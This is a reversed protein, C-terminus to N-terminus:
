RVKRSRGAVLLYVAFGGALALTTLGVVRTMNFVTRRGQPDTSYCFDLIRAITPRVRGRSAEQVAMELDAAVFRIGYVYRSVTGRPTLVVVGGPHAFGSGERRFVFGVSDTVAKTAEASGTLFRWAAPPYPREMQRLYNVRKQFAIEPTDKPDFSLTIVQFDRGPELPIRNLADVIGNLLPTCISTCTFFNMTLITPKDVLRRLTVENGEEDRLVADLAVEAGLKEHIGVEGPPIERAFAATAAGALLLCFAAMVPRRPCPGMSVERDRRTEPGPLGGSDRPGASRGRRPPTGRGRTM